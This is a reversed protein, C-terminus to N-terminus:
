PTFSTDVVFQSAANVTQGSPSLTTITQFPKRGALRARIAITVGATYTTTLTISTEGTGVVGEGIVVPTGLPDQVVACRANQVVGTITVPVYRGVVIEGGSLDLNQQTVITWSAPKTFNTGSMNNKAAPQSSDVAGHVYDVQAGCLLATINSFFLM